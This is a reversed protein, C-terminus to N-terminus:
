LDNIVEQARQRRAILGDGIACSGSLVEHARAEVVVLLNSVAGRRSQMTKTGSAWLFVAMAALATAWAQTLQKPKEATGNLAQLQQCVSVIKNTADGEEAEQVHEGRYARLCQEQCLRRVPM